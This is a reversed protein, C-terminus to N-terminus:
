LLSEMVEIYNSVDDVLGSTGFTKILATYLLEKPGGAITDDSKASIAGTGSSESSLRLRQAEIYLSFSVALNRIGIVCVRIMKPVTHPESLLYKREEAM